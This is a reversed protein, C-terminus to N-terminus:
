PTPVTLSLPISRLSLLNFRLDLDADMTAGRSEVTPKTAFAQLQEPSQWIDVVMEITEGRALAQHHLRGAPEDQGAAQLRKLAERHKEVTYQQPRFVGSIPM